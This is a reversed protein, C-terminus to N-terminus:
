VKKKEKEKLRAFTKERTNIRLLCWWGVVVVLVVINVPLYIFHAKFMFNSINVMMMPIKSTSVGLYRRWTRSRIVHYVRYILNPTHRFQSKHTTVIEKRRNVCLLGQLLFAKSNAFYLCFLHYLLNFIFRFSTHLITYLIRYEYEIQLSFFM